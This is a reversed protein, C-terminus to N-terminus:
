KKMLTMKFLSGESVVLFIKSADEREIMMKELIKPCWEKTDRKMCSKWPLRFFFNQPFDFLFICTSIETGFISISPQPIFTVLAFTQRTKQYISEPWGNFHLNWKWVLLGYPNLTKRHEIDVQSFIHFVHSKPRKEAKKQTDKM